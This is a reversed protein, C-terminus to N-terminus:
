VSPASFAVVLNDFAMNEGSGGNVPKTVDPPYATTFKVCRLDKFGSNDQFVNLVNAVDWTLNYQQAATKVTGASDAYGEITLALYPSAWASAATMQALTFAGGTQSALYFSAPADSLSFALDGSVRAKAYGSMGYMAENADIYSASITFINQWQLGSYGAPVPAISPLGDFTIPPEAVCSQMHHANTLCLLMAAAHM